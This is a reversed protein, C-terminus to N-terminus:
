FGLAYPRFRFINNFDNNQLFLLYKSHVQWKEKNKQEDNLLNFIKRNIQVM